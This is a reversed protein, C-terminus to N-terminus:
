EKKEGPVYPPPESTGNSMNKRRWKLEAEMADIFRQVTEAKFVCRRLWLIRDEMKPLSLLYDVIRMNQRTQYNIPFVPEEVEIRLEDASHKRRERKEEGPKLDVEDKKEEISM